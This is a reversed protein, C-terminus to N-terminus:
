DLHELDTSSEVAVEHVTDQYERMNERCQDM